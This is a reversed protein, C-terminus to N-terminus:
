QQLISKLLSQFRQFFDEMLNNFSGDANRNKLTELNM